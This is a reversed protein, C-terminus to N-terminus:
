LLKGVLFLIAALFRLNVVDTGALETCLKKIREDKLKSMAKIYPATENTTARWNLQQQNNDDSVAREVFYCGNKKLLEIDKEEYNSWRTYILELDCHCILSLYFDDSVHKRGNLAYDVALIRKDGDFKPLIKTKIVDNYNTIGELSVICNEIVVETKNYIIVLKNKGDYQLTFLGAYEESDLVNELVISFDNLQKRALEKENDIIRVQIM